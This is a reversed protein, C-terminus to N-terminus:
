SAGARAARSAEVTSMWPMWKLREKDFMFEYV